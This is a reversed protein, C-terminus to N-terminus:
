MDTNLDELIYPKFFKYVIERNYYVNNLMCNAPLNLYLDLYSFDNHNYIYYNGSEQINIDKDFMILSIDKESNILVKIKKLPLDDIDDESYFYSKFYKIYEKAINHASLKDKIPKIQSLYKNYKEPDSITEKAKSIIEDINSLDNDIYFSYDDGLLEKYVPIHNCIFISNTALALSLKNATCYVSHHTKDFQEFTYLFTIHICPFPQIIYHIMDCLRIVMNIKIPIDNIEFRAPNGIYFVENIPKTKKNIIIKDDMNHYIVIISTKEPLRSILFNKMYYSNVILHDFLGIYQDIEEPNKYWQPNKHCYFDLTDHVLINDKKLLKITDYNDVIDNLINMRVFIIVCNIFKFENKKQLYNNYDICASINKKMLKNIHYSIKHGRLHDTTFICRMFTFFILKNKIKYRM